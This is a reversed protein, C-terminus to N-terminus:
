ATLNVTIGTKIDEGTLNAANMEAALTFKALASVQQAYSVSVKGASSAKGTITTSADAKYALGLELQADAASAKFAAPLKAVAAVSTVPSVVQHYAATLSKCKNDAQLAFTYEKTKYGVLGGFDAVKFGGDLSLKFSSGVLFNSQAVVATLDVGYKMADVEVTTVATGPVVYEAGVSATIAEPGAARSGDTAKFSLKTNPVANALSFEGAIKKDSGIQLKDVKFAGSAFEAKVLASAPKALVAESTVTVGNSTNSKLDVKNNYNFSKSLLDKAAKIVDAYKVAM